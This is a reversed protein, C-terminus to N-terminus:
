VPGVEEPLSAQLRALPLLPCLKDPYATAGGAREAAGQLARGQRQSQPSLLYVACEIGHPVRQFEVM